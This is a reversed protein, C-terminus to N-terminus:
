HTTENRLVAMYSHSRNLNRGILTVEKSSEEARLLHFEPEMSLFEFDAIYDFYHFFNTM